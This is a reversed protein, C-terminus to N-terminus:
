TYWIIQEKMKLLRKIRPLTVTSGSGIVTPRLHSPIGTWRVVGHVFIWVCLRDVQLRTQQCTPPFQLVWLLGVCFHASHTFSHVSLLEPDCWSCQFWIIQHTFQWCIQNVSITKIPLNKWDQWQGKNCTCYLKPERSKVSVTHGSSFNGCTEYRICPAAKHM